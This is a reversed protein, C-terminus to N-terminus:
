SILVLLLLGIAPTGLGGAPLLEPLHDALPHPVQAEFQTMAEMGSGHARRFKSRGLGWGKGRGNGVFGRGDRVSRGLPRPGRPHSTKGSVVEGQLRISGQTTWGM